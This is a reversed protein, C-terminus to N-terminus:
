VDDMQRMVWKQFNHIEYEQPMLRASKFAPSKLGRQNMESAEGDQNLVLAAFDIVNALDFDPHGLTDPLFLWESKLMTREPGLPNLSVIRVYDVHGVVFMTPYLTVFTYGDAREAPSLGVFEPGCAMGNMTWSQSGDRMTAGTIDEPTWSEAENAGMLGKRYVPVLDSLEPHIGPCHLCENYNEWFIKWNCALEKEFVHGTVLLDMPWNDLTHPAPDTKFEPPDDALCVFICGNWIKLSVPLLGHASKEFEPGPTAFATSALRGSLDYSWAHYPCTILRGKLPREGACLEAGRHRCTNHFCTIDGDAARALLLNFGAVDVKRLSGPVLDNVRGAYCWNRAWIRDREREYWDPDYYVSAPLGEPCHDLLPSSPHRKLPESM